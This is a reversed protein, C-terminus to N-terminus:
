VTFYCKEGPQFKPHGDKYFPHAATTILNNKVTLQGSAWEGACEVRGEASNDEYVQKLPVHEEEAYQEYSRRPDKKGSYFVDQILARNDRTLSVVPPCVAFTRFSISLAVLLLVTYVM